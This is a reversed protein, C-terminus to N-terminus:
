EDDKSYVAAVANGFNTLFKLLDVDDYKLKEVARKGNGYGYTLGKFLSTLAVEPNFNPGYEWTGDPKVTCQMEGEDDQIVLATLPQNSIELTIEKPAEFNWITEKTEKTEETM